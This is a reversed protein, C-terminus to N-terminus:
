VWSLDRAGDGSDGRAASVLGGCGAGCDARCALRTVLAKAEPVDRGTV